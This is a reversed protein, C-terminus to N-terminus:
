WENFCKSNINLGLSLFINKEVIKPWAVSAILSDTHGDTQGDCEHTVGLRNLIDFYRKCRIISSAELKRLGFKGMGFKPTRGLSHTISLCGGGRRPCFSYWYDAM